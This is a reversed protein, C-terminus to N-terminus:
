SLLQIKEKINTQMFQIGAIIIIRKFCFMINQTANSISPNSQNRTFSIM